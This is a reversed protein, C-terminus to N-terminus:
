SAFFSSLFGPRTAFRDVVSPEGTSPLVFITGRTDCFSMCM